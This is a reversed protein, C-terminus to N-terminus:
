KDKFVNKEYNKLFFNSIKRFVINFTKEFKQIHQTKLCLKSNLIAHSLNKIEQLSKLIKSINSSFTINQSFGKVLFIATM